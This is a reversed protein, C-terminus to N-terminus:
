QLHARCVNQQCTAPVATLKQEINCVRGGLNTWSFNNLAFEGGCINQASVYLNALTQAGGIILQKNAVLMPKIAYCSESLIYETSTPPIVDFGRDDRVYACDMDTQCSQLSAAATAFQDAADGCENGFPLRYYGNALDRIAAHLAHADDTSQVTFYLEPGENRVLVRAAAGAQALTVTDSAVHAFNDESNEGNTAATTSSEVRAKILALESDTVMGKRIQGQPGPGVQYAGDASVSFGYKGVCQDQAADVCASKLTLTWAPGSQPQASQGPQQASSSSCATAFMAASGFIGMLIFRSSM